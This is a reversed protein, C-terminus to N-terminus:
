ATQITKVALAGAVIEGVMMKGTTSNFFFRGSQKLNDPTMEDIQDQTFFPVQLGTPWVQLLFTYLDKAWSQLDQPTAENPPAPVLFTSERAM